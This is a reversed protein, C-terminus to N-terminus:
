NPPHVGASQGDVVGYDYFFSYAKAGTAGDRELAEYERLFRRTSSPETSTVWRSNDTASVVIRISATFPQSQANRGWPDIYLVRSGGSNKVLTKALWADRVAGNFWSDPSNKDIPQEPSTALQAAWPAWDQQNGERWALNNLYDVVTDPEGSGDAKVGDNSVYYRAPNQVGFWPEYRAIETGDAATISNFSQWQEYGAWWWGGTTGAIPSGRYDDQASSGDRTGNMVYQDLCEQTPIYRKGGIGDPLASGVTAIDLPVAVTSNFPRSCSATLENANGFSSMTTAFIETDDNCQVAYILEHVNNKTADSSHSGQHIKILFDCVLNQTAGTRPDRFQQGMEQDNSVIVKHGPDDEHRHVAELAHANSYESLRESGYGFPVGLHTDTAVDLYVGAAEDETVIARGGARAEAAYQAMTWAYLDSARPDDGHEHGFTCSGGDERELVPPHWGPYIKGDPGIVAFENHEEATCTDYSSPTWSAGAKYAQSIDPDLELVHDHGGGGDGGDGDNETALAGTGTVSLRIPATLAVTLEAGLKGGQAAELARLQASSLKVFTTRTRKAAVSLATKASTVGGVRLTASGTCARTSVCAFTFGVRGDATPTTALDIVKGPAAVKVIRKKVVAAKRPKSSTVVFSVTRRNSKAQNIARLQATSLRVRVTKSRKAKVSFRTKASSLGGVKAQVTGTCRKKKHTGTPRCGVRVAVRGQADAQAVSLAKAPAKAAASSKAEAPEPPTAGGLLIIGAALIATARIIRTKSM